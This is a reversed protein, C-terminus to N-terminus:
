SLSLLYGKGRVTRLYQPQEPTTEMKQRLRFIHPRVLSQAEREDMTYNWAAQALQRCSFVRDPEALLPMLIAAESETLEVTRLQPLEIVLLRKDLDLKLSGAQAVGRPTPLGASTSAPVSASAAAVASDAPLLGTGRLADVTEGLLTILQQHRVQTARAQLNRAIAQGIDHVSAPKVLYDVAGIKVAAIASDLTAHGTLIIILLDPYLQRAREMVDRGQIGPMQMDLLMLDFDQTGLLQLATAGSDAEVAQYNLLTLARVIASRIPAEDDVVLIRAVQFPPHEALM